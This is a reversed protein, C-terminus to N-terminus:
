LAISNNMRPSTACHPRRGAGGPELAAAAEAAVGAGALLGLILGIIIEM